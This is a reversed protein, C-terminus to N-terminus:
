RQAEHSEDAAVDWRQHWIEYEADREFTRFLTSGDALELAAVWRDPSDVAFSGLWSGEPSRLPEVSFSSVRKAAWRGLDEPEVEEASMPYLNVSRLEPSPEPMRIEFTVPIPGDPDMRLHSSVGPLMTVFRAFVLKGEVTNVIVVYTGPFLTWHAAPAGRGDALSYLGQRGMGDHSLQRIRFYRDEADPVNWEIELRGLEPIAIHGLETDEGDLELQALKWRGHQSAVVLLDYTAPPLGAFYFSGDRFAKPYVNTRAELHSLQVLSGAPGELWSLDISGRLNGSSQFHRACEITIGDASPPDLVQVHLPVQDTSARVVAQVPLDPWSDIRISGDDDTINVFRTWEGRPTMLDIRYGSIPKQHLDVLRIRVPNVPALSLSAEILGGEELEWNEVVQLNGSVATAQVKGPPLHDAEFRGDPGPVVEIMGLFPRNTWRLEVPTGAVPTGNPDLLQGTVSAGRTLHLECGLHTRQRADVAIWSHAHGPASGVLTHVGQSAQLRFRGDEDSQVQLDRQVTGFGPQWKRTGNRRVQRVIAGPLPAGEKDRVVGEIATGPGLLRLNLDRGDLKEPVVYYIQSDAFGAASARVFYGTAHGEALRVPQRTWHAIDPQFAGTEDARGAPVMSDMPGQFLLAGPMPAGLDDVVRLSWEASVPPSAASVETASRQEPSDSTSGDVRPGLRAVELELPAEQASGDGAVRQVTAIVPQTEAFGPSSPTWVMRLAVGIVTVCAILLAAVPLGAGPAVLFRSRWGAGRLGAAALERPSWRFLDMLGLALARQGGVRRDLERRLRQLGRQLHTRVTPLPCALRGAIVAATEGNLYYRRLTEAYPEDLATIADTLQRRMTEREIPAAPDLNVAESRSARRERYQRRARDRRM